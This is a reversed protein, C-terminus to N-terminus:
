SPRYITVFDMRIETIGAMIIAATTYKTISIRMRPIVSVSSRLKGFPYRSTFTAFFHRNNFYFVAERCIHDDYM